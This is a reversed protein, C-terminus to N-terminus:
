YQNLRLKNYTYFRHAFICLFTDLESERAHKALCGASLTNATCVSSSSNDLCTFYTKPAVHLKINWLSILHLQLLTFTSKYKYFYYIM